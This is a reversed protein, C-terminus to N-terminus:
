GQINDRILSFLHGRELPKADEDPYNVVENQNELRFGLEGFMKPVAKSGLLIQYTTKERASFNIRNVGHETARRMVEMAMLTGYGRKQAGPLVVMDCVYLQREEGFFEARPNEIFAICYGVWTSGRAVFSYKEVEAGRLADQLLDIENWHHMYDPYTMSEIGIVIDATEKELPVFEVPYENHGM